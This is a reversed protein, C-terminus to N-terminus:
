RGNKNRLAMIDLEEKLTRYKDDLEQYKSRWELDTMDVDGL